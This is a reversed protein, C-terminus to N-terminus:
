GLSWNNLFFLLGFIAVLFISLYIDIPSFAPRNRFTRSKFRGFGRGEMSFVLKDARRLAGILLPSLFQRLYLNIKFLNRQDYRIGRVLQAHLITRGEEDLIPSLRLATIFMFGFRYPVGIKMLAYALDAPETTLIFIYSLAIISLYRGSIRMGSSLGGTTFSFLAMDTQFFLQGSKDFFLYLIILFLGTLIVFRYGRVRWIRNNIWFLSTNLLIGFLFLIWGTNITFVFVSGLLLWIFKTLAYSRHVLSSGPIYSLKYM